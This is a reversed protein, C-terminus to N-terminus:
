QTSPPEMFDISSSEHAHIAYIYKDYWQDDKWIIERLHDERRIGLKEMVRASARNPTDCTDELRHLRLDHFGFSNLTRM